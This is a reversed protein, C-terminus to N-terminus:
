KPTTPTTNEPTTSAGPTPTNVGYYHLYATTKWYESVGELNMLKFWVVKASEYSNYAEYSLAQWGM